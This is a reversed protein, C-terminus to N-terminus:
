FEYGFLEIDKKFKEAVIEKTEDDYFEKYAGKQKKPKSTNVNTRPLEENIGIALCVKRWDEEINEFRGIFDIWKENENHINQIFKYHRVWHTNRPDGNEDWAIHKIFHSFSVDKPITNLQVHWSRHDLHYASIMKDWPNRVFTFKFYPKWKDGNIPQDWEPSNIVDPIVKEFIGRHMSHGGTRGIHIFIFKYADSITSSARVFELQYEPHEEWKSPPWTDRNYDLWKHSM